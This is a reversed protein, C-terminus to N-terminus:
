AEWYQGTAKSGEENLSSEAQPSAIGEGIVVMAQGVVKASSM